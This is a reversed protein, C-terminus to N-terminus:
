LCVSQAHLNSGVVNIVLLYFTGEKDNKIGGSYSFIPIHSIKGQNQKRRAPSFKHDNGM